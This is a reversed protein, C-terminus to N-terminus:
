ETKFTLKLGKQEAQHKFNRLLEDTFNGLSVREINVSMQGAEIKSLDLVKM